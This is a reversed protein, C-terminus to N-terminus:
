NFKDKTITLSDLAVKDYYNNKLNSLLKDAAKRTQKKEWFFIGTITGALMLGGTLSGFLGMYFAQM